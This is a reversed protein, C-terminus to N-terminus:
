PEIKERFTLTHFNSGMTEAVKDFDDFMFFVYVDAVDDRHLSFLLCENFGEGFRSLPLVLRTAHGYNANFERQVTDEPLLNPGSIVHDEAINFILSALYPNYASNLDASAISTYGEPLTQPKLSVIQYRIELKPESLAFVCQYAVSDNEKPAILIFDSPPNFQLGGKVLLNCFNDPLEQIM